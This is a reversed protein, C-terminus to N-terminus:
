QGWDGKCVKDTNTYSVREVHGDVFVCNGRGNHYEGIHEYTEDGAREWDISGDIQRWFRVSGWEDKPPLPDNWAGGSYDELAYNYGSQKEFGQDAFMVTRTPGDVSHYYDGSVSDNMGYSRAADDKGCVSYFTPCLYVVEDGEGGLYSFLDEGWPEWGSKTDRTICAVAEPGFWPTKRSDPNPADSTWDIWGRHIAHQESGRYDQYTAALPLQGNKANAYNVAAQQLQRLNSACKACRGREKMQVFGPFLLATLVVIIAIVVLLEILTFSNKHKKM